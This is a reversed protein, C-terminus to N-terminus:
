GEEPTGTLDFLVWIKKDNAFRHPKKAKEPRDRFLLVLNREGIVRILGTFGTQNDKKDLLQRHPDTALINKPVIKAV